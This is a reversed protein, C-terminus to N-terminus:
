LAGSRKGFVGPEAVVDLDEFESSSESLDALDFGNEGVVV